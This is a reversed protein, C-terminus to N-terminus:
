QDIGVVLPNEEQQYFVMLRDIIPLLDGLQGKFKYIRGASTLGLMATTQINTLRNSMRCLKYVSDFSSHRVDLEWLRRSAKFEREAIKRWDPIALDLVSSLLKAPMFKGHTGLFEIYTKSKKKEITLKGSGDIWSVKM